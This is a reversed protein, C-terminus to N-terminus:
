STWRCAHAGGRLHQVGVGLQALDDVVLVAVAQRVHQADHGLITLPASAALPRGHPMCGGGGGPPRPWGEKCPRRRRRAATMADPGIAPAHMHMFVGFRKAFPAFTAMRRHQPRWSHDLWTRLPKCAVGYVCAAGARSSRRCGCRDQVVHEDVAERLADEVVVLGDHDVVARVHHLREAGYLAHAGDPPRLHELEWLEVQAGVDRYPAAGRMCAHMVCWPRGRVRWCPRAAGPRRTRAHM